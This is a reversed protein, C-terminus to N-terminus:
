RSFCNPLIDFFNVCVIFKVRKRKRGRTGKPQQQEGTLAGFLTQAQNPEIKQTNKTQEFKQMLHMQQQSSLQPDSGTFPHVHRQQNYVLSVDAEEGGQDLSVKSQQQGSFICEFNM